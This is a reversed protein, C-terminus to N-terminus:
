DDEYFVVFEQPGLTEFQCGHEDSLVTTCYAETLACHHIHGSPAGQVCWLLRPTQEHVNLYAIASWLVGGIGILLAALPWRETKNM